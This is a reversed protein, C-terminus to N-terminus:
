TEDDYSGRFPRDRPSEYPLIPGVSVTRRTVTATRLVYAALLAAPFVAVAVLASAVYPLYPEPVAPGGAGYLLSLLGSAVLGVIGAAVILQSFRTLERQMYITKFHERATSFFELVELLEEFADVTELDLSDAYRNRLYRAAYIQWADDYSMTASLARFTGFDSVELRRDLRESSDVVVDAYSLAMARFEEDPHDEVRRRLAEGRRDIAAALLELLKTPEAPAATLDMSAEVERHFQLIGELRERSEEPTTFERSLILQNITVVITTLSFVGATLGSAFRSVPAGDLFGVLGLADTGVLVAAVVVTIGVAIGPRSGDVLLWESWRRLRDPPVSGPDYRANGDSAAEGRADDSETGM